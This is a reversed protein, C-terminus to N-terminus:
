LSVWSQVGYLLAVAATAGIVLILVFTSSSMLERTEGDADSSPKKRAVIAIVAILILAPILLQVLYRM